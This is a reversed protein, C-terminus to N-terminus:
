PGDIHKKSWSNRYLGVLIQKQLITIKKKSKPILFCIDLFANKLNKIKIKIKSIHGFSTLFKTAATPNVIKQGIKPLIEFILFLILFKFFAKRSM